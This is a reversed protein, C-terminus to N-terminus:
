VVGNHEGEGLGWDRQLVGSVRPRELSGQGTSCEVRESGLPHSPQREFAQQPAFRSRTPRPAPQPAQSPRCLTFSQLSLNFHRLPSLSPLAPGFQSPTALRVQSQERGRRNSSSKERELDKSTELSREWSGLQTWVADLRTWDDEVSWTEARRSWGVREEIRVSWDTSGPIVSGVGEVLRGAVAGGGSCTQVLQRWRREDREEERGERELCGWLTRGRGAEGLGFARSRSIGIRRGGLGRSCETRGRGERGREGVRVGGLDQWSACWLSWLRVQPM